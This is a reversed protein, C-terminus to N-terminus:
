ETGIKIRKRESESDRFTIPMSCALFIIIMIKFLKPSM